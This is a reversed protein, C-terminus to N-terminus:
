KRRFIMLPGDVEPMNSITLQNGEVIYDYVLSEIIIKNDVVEIAYNGSALIFPYESEVSNNVILQNEDLDFTWQIEDSEISVVLLSSYHIMEWEGNLQHSQIEAKDSTCSNNLYIIILLSIFYKM